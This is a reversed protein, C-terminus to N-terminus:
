YVAKQIPNQIRQCKKLAEQACKFSCFYCPREEGKWQSSLVEAYYWSQCQSCGTTSCWHCQHSFSSDFTADLLFHKDCVSARCDPCSYDIKKSDCVYCHGFPIAPPKEMPSKSDDDKEKKWKPKCSIIKERKSKIKKDVKLYKKGNKTSVISISAKKTKTKKKTKKDLTTTTATTVVPKSAPIPPIKEIASIKVSPPSSHTPTETSSSYFFSSLYGLM